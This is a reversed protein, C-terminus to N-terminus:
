PRQVQVLGVRVLGFWGLQVGVLGFWGLSAAWRLQAAEDLLKRSARGGM